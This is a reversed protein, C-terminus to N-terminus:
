NESLGVPSRGTMRPVRRNNGVSNMIAQSAVPTREPQESRAPEVSQSVQLSQNTTDVGSTICRNPTTADFRGSFWSLTRITLASFFRDFQSADQGLTEPYRADVPRITTRM